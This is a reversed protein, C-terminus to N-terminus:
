KNSSSEKLHHSLVVLANLNNDKLNTRFKNLIKSVKSFSRESECSTPRITKLANYLMRGHREPTISYSM